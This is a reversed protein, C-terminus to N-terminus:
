KSSKRPTKKKKFPEKIGVTKLLVHKCFGGTSKAEAEDAANTIKKHQEKTFGRILIETAM